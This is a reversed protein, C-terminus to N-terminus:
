KQIVHLILTKIVLTKERQKLTFKKACLIRFCWRVCWFFQWWYAVLMRVHHIHPHCRIGDIGDKKSDILTLWLLEHKVRAVYANLKM